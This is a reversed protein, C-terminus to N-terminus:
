LGLMTNRSTVLRQLMFQGMQMAVIRPIPKSKLGGIAYKRNWAKYFVSTKPNVTSTLWLGRQLAALPWMKQAYPYYVSPIPALRWVFQWFVLSCVISVPVM